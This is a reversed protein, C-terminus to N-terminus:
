KQGNKEEVHFVFDNFEARKLGKQAMIYLAGFDTFYPKFDGNFVIMKVQVGSKLFHYFIIQQNENIESFNFFKRSKVWKIEYWISEGNNLVLYDPMGKNVGSGIQKYDALKHIFADPYMERLLRNAKQESRTM